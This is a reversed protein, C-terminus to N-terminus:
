ADKNLKLDHAGHCDTCIKKQADAAVPQSASGRGCEHCTRCFPDVDHQAFVRDPAVENNEDAAHAESPGHCKTCGVSQQLHVTGALEDECDVHCQACGGLPNEQPAQAAGLPGPAAEGRSMQPLAAQAPTRSATARAAPTPQLAPAPSAAAQLRDPVDEAPPLRNATAQPTASSSAAEAVRPGGNAPRQQTQQRCSPALSLLSLAIAAATARKGRGFSRSCM